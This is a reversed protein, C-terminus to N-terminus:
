REHGPSGRGRAPSTAAGTTSPPRWGRGGRGRGSGSSGTASGASRRGPRGRRRGAPRAGAAGPARGAGAPEHRPDDCPRRGTPPWGHLGGLTGGSAGRAPGAGHAPDDQHGDGDHEPEEDQPGDVVGAAPGRASSISAALSVVADLSSSAADSRCSPPARPGGARRPRRAPPWRTPPAPRPLSGPRRSRRRPSGPGARRWRRRGLDLGGLDQGRGPVLGVGGRQGRGDARRGLRHRRHGVRGREVRGARVDHHHEAGVQGASRSSRRRSEPAM